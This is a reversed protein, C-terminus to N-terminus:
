PNVCFIASLAQSDIRTQYISRAVARSLPGLQIAFGPQEAPCSKSGSSLHDGSLPAAVPKAGGLEQLGRCLGIGQLPDSHIARSNRQQTAHDAPHPHATDGAHQLGQRFVQLGLRPLQREDGAEM